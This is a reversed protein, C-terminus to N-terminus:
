LLRADKADSQRKKNLAKSKKYAYNLIFCIGLVFTSYIYSMLLTAEISEWFGVVPISFATLYFGFLAAIVIYSANLKFRSQFIAKIVGLTVFPATIKLGIEIIELLNLDEM